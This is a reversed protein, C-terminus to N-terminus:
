IIVYRKLKDRNSVLYEILVDLQESSLASFPSVMSDDEHDPMNTFYEIDDTIPDFGLKDCISQYTVM